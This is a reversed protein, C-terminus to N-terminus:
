PLLTGGFSKEVDLWFLALPTLIIAVIALATFLHRIM